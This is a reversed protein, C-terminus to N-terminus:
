PLPRPLEIGFRERVAATPDDVSEESREGDESVILKRDSLTIRGRETARSCVTQKTFHSDPSTQQWHNMEAFDDLPHATDAFTYRQSWDGDRDDEYVWGDGGRVFRVRHGRDHHIRDTILPVPHVFSEGFGVDALFWADGAVSVALTLHDFPPGFQGSDNAVRASRLEVGFGLSRLLAAFLSNLEYCYGGRGQRRGIVKDFVTDLGLEIPDGLHISLNEFPVTLLHRVHLHDLAALAASEPRDAGLRELYADVQANSLSPGTM